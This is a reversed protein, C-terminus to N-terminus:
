FNFTRDLVRLQNIVEVVGEQQRVLVEAAVKEKEFQVTGKLTVIGEKQVVEIVAHHIDHTALLAEYVLDDVNNENGSM